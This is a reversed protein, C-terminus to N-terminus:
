YKCTLESFLDWAKNDGMFMKEGEDDKGAPILNCLKHALEKTEEIEDMEIKEFKNTM